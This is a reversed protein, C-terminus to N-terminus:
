PTAEKNGTRVEARRNFSRKDPDQTAYCCKGVGTVLSPHMGAKRLYAAVAEARKDALTDNHAKGGLDCTYGTVSLNNGKTEAAMSEVFSSLRAKAADGLNYSDLDFLITISAGPRHQVDARDKKVATERSQGEPGRETSERGVAVDQSVRVSLAPFRSTRVLYPGTTCADECVVFTQGHASDLAMGNFSYRYDMQYVGTACSNVSQFFVLLAGILTPCASKM